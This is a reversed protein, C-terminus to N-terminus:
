HSHDFEVRVSDLGRVRNRYCKAYNIVNVLRVRLGCNHWDAM